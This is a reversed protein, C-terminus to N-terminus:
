DISYSWMPTKKDPSYVVKSEGLITAEMCKRNQKYDKVTVVPLLEPVEQQPRLSNARNQAIIDQRKKNYRINHQNIHIRTKM